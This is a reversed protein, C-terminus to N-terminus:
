DADRGGAHSREAGSSARLASSLANLWWEVEQLILLSNGSFLFVQGGSALVVFASAHWLPAPLGLVPLNCYSSLSFTAVSIKVKPGNAM